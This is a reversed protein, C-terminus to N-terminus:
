CGKKKKIIEKNKFSNILMRTAKKKRELKEQYLSMHM